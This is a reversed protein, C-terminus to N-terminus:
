AAKKAFKSLLTGILGGGNKGLVNTGLNKVFYPLILKTIWGSKALVFNKLLVDGAVDVGLNLLSNSRDRATIKGIFKVLQAAPRLEEKLAVIDQQIIEKQIVLQRELLDKEVLLDDYTQIRNM